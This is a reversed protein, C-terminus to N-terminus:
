ARVVALVTSGIKLEEGIQLERKLHAIGDVRFQAAKACTTVVVGEGKAVVEIHRRSVGIDTLVLDSTEARGVLRPRASVLLRQGFDPGQKVVVAIAVRHM